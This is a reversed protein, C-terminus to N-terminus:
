PEDIHYSYVGSPDWGQQTGPITCRVFYTGNDREQSPPGFVLTRSVWWDFDAGTTRKTEPNFGGYLGDHQASVATCSVDAATSRDAVVVAVSYWKATTHDRVIPCIVTVPSSSYNLVRGEGSRVITSTSGEQVCMTAPFVKMDGADAGSAGALLLALGALGWVLRRAFWRAAHPLVTTHMTLERRIMSTNTGYFAM